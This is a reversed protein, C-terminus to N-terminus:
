KEQLTEEIRNSLQHSDISSHQWFCRRAVPHLLSGKYILIYKQNKRHEADIRKRSTIYGAHNKQKKTYAFETGAAARDSDAASISDKPFPLEHAASWKVLMVPFATWARHPERNVMSFSVRNSGLKNAQYAEM